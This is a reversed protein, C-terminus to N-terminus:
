IVNIFVKAQTANASDEVTWGVLAGMYEPSCLTSQSSVDLHGINTANISGAVVMRGAALSASSRVAGHYGYVQLLGVGTTSITVGAPVVGAVRATLGSTVNIAQAVLKVSVGAPQTANTANVWQVVKGEALTSASEANIVSIFVREPDTRNVKQILM